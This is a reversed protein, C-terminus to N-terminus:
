RLDPSGRIRQRHRSGSTGSTALSTGREPGSRLRLFSRSPLRRLLLSRLQMGLQAVLVGTLFMVLGSPALKSAIKLERRRERNEDDADCFLRSLDQECRDLVRRVIERSKESAALWPQPKLQPDLTSARSSDLSIARARRWFEDILWDDELPM